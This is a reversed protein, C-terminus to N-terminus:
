TSEKSPVTATKAASFPTPSPSGFVSQSIPSLPHSQSCGAVLAVAALALLIGITSQVVAASGPRSHKGTRDPTPVSNEGM